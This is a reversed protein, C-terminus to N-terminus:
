YHIYPLALTLFILFIMASSVIYTLYNATSEKLKGNCLHKIIRSIVHGGDLPYIPLANFIAVNFNIFWIWYFLNSLPYFWDGIPSTYFMHLLHSYPIFYPGSLITPTILYVPTSFSNSLKKYNELILAPDDVVEIGLFSKSANTPNEALLVIEYEIKNDHAFTLNIPDNPKLDHMAESLDQVERLFHSNISILINGPKLGANYAPYDQIVDVVGLGHTQTLPTLSATITMVLLLFIIATTINSGVGAALIRLADKLKAKKLAAEDPEVFAGIPVILVFIVGASKVLFNLSRAMVGHGGEHVIIAVVIGIWGYVIPLYPNLGPILINALFGTERAAQGAAPISLYVLLSNVILYTGAVALFPFVVLYIWALVKTSRLRGIRTMSDIGRRTRLMIMFLHFEVRKTSEGEKEVSESSQGLVVM